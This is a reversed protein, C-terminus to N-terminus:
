DSDLSIARAPCTFVAQRVPEAEQDPVDEALVVAIGDADQDFWEPAALACQGSGICRERDLRIRM